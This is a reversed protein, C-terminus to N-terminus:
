ARSTLTFPGNSQVAFAATVSTNANMTVTCAGTGSCGGGSWGGFVSGSDPAATLTVPTGSPYAESCDTGCNIGAPSSTVTGTGTGSRSVTLTFPGGSQSAFTATVAIDANMTVTCTGTGSCGGGNWGMFAWGSAPTATLDVATRAPYRVSCRSGCNIGNPSSQVQGSGGKNVTLTYRVPPAAHAAPPAILLISMAVLFFGVMALLGYLKV